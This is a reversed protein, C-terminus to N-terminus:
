PLRVAVPEAAGDLIADFRAAVLPRWVDWDALAYFRNDRVAALALDAIQEPPVPRASAPQAAGASQDPAPQDPASRNPNPAAPRPGIAAPPTPGGFRAPRNRGGEGIRTAVYGPCLLTVGIQPARDRLDFWLSETVATVAQKAAQYPAGLPAAGLGMMSSTNVVHGDDGHAVMAPLFSRIGHVVGWFCVGMVWEWDAQSLEWAPGKVGVGANNVLLHVPGFREAAASALRDVATPDTVDTPVALVEAGGARLGGAAEALAAGDVDALVLRAGDGALRAALAHGIGSAAGTVVAVKGAVDRM